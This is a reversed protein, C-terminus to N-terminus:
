RRIGEKERWGIRAQEELTVVEGGYYRSLFREYAAEAKNQCDDCKGCPNEEDCAM